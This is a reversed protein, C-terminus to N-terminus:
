GIDSREGGSNSRAEQGRSGLERFDPMDLPKRLLGGNAIPNASMRRPKGEPGSGEVRPILRGAEDFLEEPKYSRM